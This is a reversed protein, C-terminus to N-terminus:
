LAAWTGRMRKLTKRVQEGAKQATKRSGDRRREKEVNEKDTWEKV